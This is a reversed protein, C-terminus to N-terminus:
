ARRRAKSVADRHHGRGLNGGRARGARRWSGAARRAAAGARGSGRRLHLRRPPRSQALAAAAQILLTSKGIGPDGGDAAGLRARLRRRHRPRIRCAPPLRPARPKAPWRNSRSCAARARGRPRPDRRDAAAGEEAITNWEGCADCKGQWRGCAAGCNQCIFSLRDQGHRAKRRLVGHGYRNSSFLVLVTGPFLRDAATFGGTAGGLSTLVEYGITGARRQSITSGSGM